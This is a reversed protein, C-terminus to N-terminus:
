APDRMEYPNCADAIDLCLPAGTDLFDTLAAEVPAPDLGRGALWQPDYYTQRYREGSDCILTVLSGTQGAQRMEAALRCLALFNTGTSGGVPRRLRRTLVNMAAISAADPVKMMRDVVGAVFSPECRPRGVGEILSPRECTQACDDRCFADFFASHEVDAVCLRTPHRCYRLYRGMTASTGGTGASMVIWEPLPCREGQLQNFISEAINNNGRWDTAREAFTFQDMYHGGLRAALAAAEAYLARGDDILHCNGGYHTIAAIKEASTTRPMVAYFPVGIMQAFYAESVATSGSSAEVVPTGERIHGNCLAYLFLSRALRHKLSGTPHTSEDKLYIDIGALAPVILRILHTDATRCQDAEIADVADDVWGRRYRPPSPLSAPVDPPRIM